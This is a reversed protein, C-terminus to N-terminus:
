TRQRKWGTWLRQRDNSVQEVYGSLLFPQNIVVPKFEIALKAPEQEAADAHVSQTRRHYTGDNGHTSKSLMHDNEISQLGSCVEELLTRGDIRISRHLRDERQLRQSM